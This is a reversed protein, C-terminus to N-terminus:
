KELLLRCVFDLVIEHARLLTYSVQLIEAEKNYKRIRKILAEPPQGDCKTIFISDRKSVRHQQRNYEHSGAQEGWKKFIATRKKM